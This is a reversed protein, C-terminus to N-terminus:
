IGSFTSRNCPLHSALFTGIGTVTITNFFFFIVSRSSILQFDTLNDIMHSQCNRDIFDIGLNYGQRLLNYNCFYSISNKKKISANRTCSELEKMGSFLYAQTYMGIATCVTWVSEVSQVMRTNLIRFHNGFINSDKFQM